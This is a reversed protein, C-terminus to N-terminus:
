AQGLEGQRRVEAFPLFVRSLNRPGVGEKHSKFLNRLGFSKGPGNILVSSYGFVVVKGTKRPSTPRDANQGLWEARFKACM